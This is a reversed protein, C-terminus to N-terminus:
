VMGSGESLIGFSRCCSFVANFVKIIDVASHSCNNLVMFIIMEEVRFESNNFVADLIINM